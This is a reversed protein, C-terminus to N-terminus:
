CTSVKGPVDTYCLVYTCALLHLHRSILVMLFANTVQSSDSHMKVKPIAAPAPVNYTKVKPGGNSGPGLQGWDYISEEQQKRRSM